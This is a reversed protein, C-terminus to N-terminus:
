IKNSHEEPHISNPPIPAELPKSDINISTFATLRSEPDTPMVPFMHAEENAELLVGRTESINRSIYFFAAVSFIAMVFYVWSLSVWQTILPIATTFLFNLSWNLTLAIALGHSRLSFPLIEAILVTPVPALGLAYAFRHGALGIFVLGAQWNTIGEEHKVFMTVLSLYFLVIGMVAESILLLRRRGLTDAWKAVAMFVLLQPVASLVTAWTSSNRDLGWSIFIGRSYYTVFGSGVAQQILQLSIIKFLINRPLTSKTEEKPRSMHAYITEFEESSHSENRRGYIKNLVKMADQNFGHSILWRPSEVLILASLVLSVLAVLGALLFMRRWHEESFILGVCYSSIIGVFGFFQNLIGLFGRISSPSMETIYLGPMISGMGIGLGVVTRAFILQGVNQSLFSGLAGAILIFNTVLIMSKRGIRDSGIWGPLLSGLVAGALMSTVIFTVAYYNDKLGWEKEITTIVVAIIGSNFGYAFTTLSAVGGYIYPTFPLVLPKRESEEIFTLPGDLAEPLLKAFSDPSSPRSDAYNEAKSEETFFNKRHTESPM